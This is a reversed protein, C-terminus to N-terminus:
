EEFSGPFRVTRVSLQDEDIDIVNFGPDEGSSDGKDASENWAFRSCLASPTAVLVQKYVTTYQMHNHAAFVGM